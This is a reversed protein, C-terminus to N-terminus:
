EPDEVIEINENLEEVCSHCVIMFSAIHIKEGPFMTKRCLTCAPLKEIFSDWEAERREAQRVPDYCDPIIAAM